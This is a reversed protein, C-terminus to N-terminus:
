ERLFVAFGYWKYLWFYAHFVIYSYAGLAVLYNLINNEMM